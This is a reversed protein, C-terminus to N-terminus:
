QVTGRIGGIGGVPVEGEEVRARAGEAGGGVLVVRALQHLEERDAEELQVGVARVVGRVHGADVGDVKGETCQQTWAGHTACARVLAADVALRQRRVLRRRDHGECVGCMTCQWM